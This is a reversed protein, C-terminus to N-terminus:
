SVTTMDGLLVDLLAEEHVALHLALRHSCVEQSLDPSWPTGPAIGTLPLRTGDFRLSTTTRM